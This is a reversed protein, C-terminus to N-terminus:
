KLRITEKKEFKYKWCINFKKGDLYLKCYEEVNRLLFDIFNTFINNLIQIEKGLNWKKDSIYM